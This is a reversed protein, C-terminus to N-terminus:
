PRYTSLKLATSNLYMVVPVVPLRWPVFKRWLCTYTHVYETSTRCIFIDLRFRAWVYPPVYMCNQGLDTLVRLGYAAASTM